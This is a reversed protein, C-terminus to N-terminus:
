IGNNTFCGTRDVVGRMAREEQGRREEGRASGGARVRTPPSTREEGGRARGRRSRRGPYGPGTGGGDTGLPRKKTLPRTTAKEECAGEPRAIAAGPAGRATSSQTFMRSRVRPILSQYLTVGETRRAISPNARMRCLWCACRARKRANAGTSTRQSTASPAMLKRYTTSLWRAPPAKPPELTPHWQGRRGRARAKHVQRGTSSDSRTKSGACDECQVTALANQGLAAHQGVVPLADVPLARALQPPANHM